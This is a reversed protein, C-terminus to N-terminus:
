GASYETYVSAFADAALIGWGIYVEMRLYVQNHGKLDGASTDNDPNGYKIVELPIDKSYGWRFASFDGVYASITDGTAAHVGVTNNIDLGMGAFNAPKGGFRFEPYQTIGNAKIKSLASAFSPDMMIGNVLFDNGNVLQIAVDLNDDCTAAVYTVKQTIVKDLANNGVVTSAATTRPNLGHMAAIDFGRAFKKSASDAFQTLVDLQYEETGYLFEDSVRAGYEFKVPVVTVSGVTAGGVTKAGNEAVIDAEKDLDFTYITNGNFAIPTQPCLAAISSHGKVKNFMETVISAPLLSGRTLTAM